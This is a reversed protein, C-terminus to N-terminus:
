MASKEVHSVLGVRHLRRLPQRVPLPRRHHAVAPSASNARLHRHPPAAARRPFLRRVSNGRIHRLHHRALDGQHPVSCHCFGVCHNANAHPPANTYRQYHPRRYCISFIRIHCAFVASTARFSNSTPNPFILEPWYNIFNNQINM